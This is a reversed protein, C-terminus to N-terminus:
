GEQTPEINQVGDSYGTINYSLRRTRDCYGKHCNMSIQIRVQCRLMGKFPVLQYKLDKTIYIYRMFARICHLLIYQASTIIDSKISTCFSFKNISSPLEHNHLMDFARSLCSSSVSNQTLSANLLKRLRRSHSSRWLVNSRITQPFRSATLSTKRPARRGGLSQVDVRFSLVQHSTETAVFPLSNVSLRGFNLTTEGEPLSLILLQGRLSLGNVLSAIASGNPSTCVIVKAGGMGLLVEAVNQQSANIYEEAGLSLALERKTSSSSIAVTRFGM